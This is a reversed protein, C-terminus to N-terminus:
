HRLIQCCLRSINCVREEFPIWVTRGCVQKGVRGQLKICFFDIVGAPNKTWIESPELVIEADKPAINVAGYMYFVINRSEHHIIFNQCIQTKETLPNDM